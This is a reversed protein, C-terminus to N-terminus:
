RLLGRLPARPIPVVPPHPLVMLGSCDRTEEGWPFPHRPAQRTGVVREWCTFFCPLPHDPCPLSELPLLSAHHVPIELNLAFRNGLSRRLALSLFSCFLCTPLQCPAQLPGLRGHRAAQRLLM